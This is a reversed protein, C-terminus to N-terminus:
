RIGSKISRLEEAGRPALANGSNVLWPGLAFGCGDAVARLTKRRTM